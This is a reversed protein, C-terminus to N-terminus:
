FQCLLIDMLYPEINYKACVDAGNFVQVNTWGGQKFREVTDTSDEFTNHYLKHGEADAKAKGAMTPPSTAVFVSGASSMARTGKFMALMVDRTLYGLLGEGIWATPAARNFGGAVLAREVAGWDGLNGVVAVRKACKPAGLEPAVRERLVIIEATDVEYVVCGSPWAVRWPRCDMGAGLLVVQKAATKLVCADLELGRATVWADGQQVSKLAGMGALVADLEADDILVDLAKADFSADLRGLMSNNGAHLRATARRRACTLLCTSEIDTLKPRVKSM